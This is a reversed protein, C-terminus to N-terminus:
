ETQEKLVLGPLNSLDSRYWGTKNEIKRTHLILNNWLKGFEEQHKEHLIADKTRMSAPDKSKFMAIMAPTDNGLMVRFTDWPYDINHKKYFRIYQKVADAFEKEHGSLLYIFMWEIYPEDQTQRFEDNPHYSLEPDWMIVSGSVTSLDRFKAAGDYGNDMMKDSLQMMKQYLTDISAFNRIPVVWYIANDDNEYAYVPVDFQYKNWLGVAEKQVKMFQARNSPSVTEEFVVFWPPSQQATLVEPVMTGFVLGLVVLLILQKM